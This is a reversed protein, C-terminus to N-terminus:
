RHNVAWDVFSSTMWQWVWGAMINISFITLPSLSIGYTRAAALGWRMSWLWCPSHTSHLSILQRPFCFIYFLVRQFIWYIRGNLANARKAAHTFTCLLSISFQVTLQRTAPRYLVTLSITWVGPHSIKDGSTHYSSHHSPRWTMDAPFHAPRATM